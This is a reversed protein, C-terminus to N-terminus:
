QKRKISVCAEINMNEYYGVYKISYGTISDDFDIESILFVITYYNMPNYYFTVMISAFFCIDVKLNIVILILCDLLKISYYFLIGIKM